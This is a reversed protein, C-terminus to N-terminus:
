WKGKPCKFWSLTTKVAVWCGCVKCKGKEHQECNKCINMKEERNM